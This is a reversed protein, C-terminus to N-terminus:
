HRFGHGCSGCYWCCCCFCAELRDFTIQTRSCRYNVAMVLMFERAGTVANSKKKQTNVRFKNRCIVVAASDTGNSILKLKQPDMFYNKKTAKKKKIKTRAGTPRLLSCVPFLSIISIFAAFSALDMLHSFGFIYIYRISLYILTCLIFARLHSPSHLSLASFSALLFFWFSEYNILEFSPGSVIYPTFLLPVAAVGLAFCGSDLPYFCRHLRIKNMKLKKKAKKEVSGTRCRVCSISNGEM